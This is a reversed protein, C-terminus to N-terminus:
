NLTKDMKEVASRKRGDHDTKANASLNLTALGEEFVTETDAAPVESQSIMDRSEPDVYSIWENTAKQLDTEVEVLIAKKSSFFNQKCFDQKIRSKQEILSKDTTDKIERARLLSKQSEVPDPM